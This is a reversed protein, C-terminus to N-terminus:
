TAIHTGAHALLRSVPLGHGSLAQDLAAKKESDKVLLVRFPIAIIMSLSMTIRAHCPNGQPETRLVSVAADPDFADRNDLMSSFLLAFHGDAGMGLIALDPIESVPWDELPVFHASAAHSTLFSEKILRKNNDPHDAPVLKDNIITVTVDRWDLRASALKCYLGLTSIGGSVALRAKRKEELCQRIAAIIAEVRM